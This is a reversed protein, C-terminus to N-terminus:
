ATRKGEFRDDPFNLVEIEQGAAHRGLECDEIVLQMRNYQVVVNATM